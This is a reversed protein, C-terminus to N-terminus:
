PRCAGAFDSRRDLSTIRVDVGTYPAEIFDGSGVYMGVHHIPSGFFVLDGPELNDRSVHQGSEYQAGSYHPLSVGVKGYAWLMLGSCDFSDPGAAAWVYPSGLKKEAWWVAQAGKSSKPPNGGLALDLSASGGSSHRRSALSALLAVQRAHAEAAERAKQEAVLRQISADVSALVQKSSALDGRVAQENAAMTRQQAAAQSEQRVLVAQVEIAKAKALKIQDVTLADNRSANTLMQFSADFDSLTRASLVINLFGLPGQRYLVDARTDLQKQLAAEKAKIRALDRRSSKVQTTLREHHDRAANYRESAIEAKTNLTAIQAQVQAAQARKDAIPDAHAAASCVGLALAAALIVAAARFAVRASRPRPATLVPAVLEM